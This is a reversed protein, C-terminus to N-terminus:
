SSVVAYECQNRRKELLAKRLEDREKIANAREVEIAKTKVQLERFAGIVSTASRLPSDDM